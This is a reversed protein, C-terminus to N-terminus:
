DEVAVSAVRFLTGLGPQSLESTVALRWDGFVLESRSRDHATRDIPSILLVWDGPRVGSTVDLTSSLRVNHPLLHYRARNPGYSGPDPAVLFLRVPKLGLRDRIVTIFPYFGQDPGVRQREVADLGAYLTRTQKLRELLLWQWRADLALWGVLLIVGYPTGSRFGRWPPALLLHILAALACWVVVPILPRIRVEGGASDTFNISRGIWGLDRRWDGWALPPIEALAPRHPHLTLSEFLLPKAEPDAGVVALGIGVIRGSWNPDDSLSVFGARREDPAILRDFPRRITTATAWIVRLEHRAELGDVRWGLGRYDRAEFPRIAGQVLILGNSAAREVRLGREGQAGEGATLQLGSAPIRITPRAPDESGLYVWALLLGLGLTAGLLAVVLALPRYWAAQLVSHQM